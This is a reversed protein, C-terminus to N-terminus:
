AHKRIICYRTVIQRIRVGSSANEVMFIAGTNDTRVMIPVKVPIGM